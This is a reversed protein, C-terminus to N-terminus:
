KQRETLSMTRGTTAHLPNDLLAKRVEGKVRLDHKHDQDRAELRTVNPTLPTFLMGHVSISKSM